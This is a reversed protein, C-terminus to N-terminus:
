ECACRATSVGDPVKVAVLLKVDVWDIVVELSCYRNSSVQLRESRQSGYTVVVRIESTSAVVVSSIVALVSAVAVVVISTSAVVVVIGGAGGATYTM